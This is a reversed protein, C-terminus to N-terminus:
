EMSAIFAAIKKKLAESSAVDLLFVLDGQVQRSAIKFDIQLM